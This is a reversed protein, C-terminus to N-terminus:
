RLSAEERVVADRYAPHTELLDAHTGHAVVRGDLLFAVADVTDLLLPSTTVVLTTRGARHERLRAAVRAETHADVASTPEVLVLVEPDALLARALM